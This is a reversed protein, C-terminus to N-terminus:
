STVETGDAKRVIYDSAWDSVCVSCVTEEHQCDDDERVIVELTRGADDMVFTEGDREFTLARMELTIKEKPKIM